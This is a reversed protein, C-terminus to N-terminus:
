QQVYAVFGQPAAAGTTVICLANGAPIFLHGVGARGFQATAPYTGTLAMAGAACNTSTGYELQFTGTGGTVADWDTVYIAKGLVAAVLQVTGATSVAIAVSATPISSTPLNTVHSLAGGDANLSPLMVTTLSPVTVTQQATAAPPLFLLAVFLAMQMKM